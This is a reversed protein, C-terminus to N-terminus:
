RRGPQPDGDWAGSLAGSGPEGFGAVAANVKGMFAHAQEPTVRSPDAGLTTAEQELTPAAAAAPGSTLSAMRALDAPVPPLLRAPMGPWQVGDRALEEVRTQFAEADGPDLGEFLGRMSAPVRQDRLAAEFRKGAEL